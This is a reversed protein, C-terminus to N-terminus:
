GAVTAAFQEPNIGASGIAAKAQMYIQRLNSLDEESFAFGATKQVATPEIQNAAALRDFEIADPRPLTPLITSLKEVDVDGAATKVSEALEEGMWDRVTQLKLAALKSKAYVNGTPLEVHAALFDTAAKHTVQFLVDEPRSLGKDYYTRLGTVTDFQDLMEAMKERTAQDRSGAKNALIVAAMKRAEDAFAPRSAQLLGARQEWAKAMDSAPAHGYGAIKALTEREELPQALADAREIIKSAIKLRDTFVFEDRYKVLWAAAAKVEQGNRLPYKRHTDQTAADTWVVAYHSDPIKAEPTGSAVKTLVAAVDGAIGFFEAAKKISQSAYARQHEPLLAQKDAFFLASMWTAAKTHCPYLRRPPVAFVHQPLTEPEGCIQEHSAAKVYGPPPFLTTLRHREAGSIDQAHDLITSM